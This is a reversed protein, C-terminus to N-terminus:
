SPGKFRANWEPHEVLLQEAVIRGVPTLWCSTFYAGAPLILNGAGNLLRESEPEHQTLAILTTYWLTVVPFEESDGHFAASQGEDLRKDWLGAAILAHHIVRACNAYVRDSPPPAHFLASVLILNRRFQEGAPDSADV